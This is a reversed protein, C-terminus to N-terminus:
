SIKDVLWWKLRQFISGKELDNETVLDVTAIEQEDLFIVAQGFRTGKEIPAIIENVPIKIDQRIDAEQNKPILVVANDSAVLTTTYEKGRAVRLPSGVTFGKQLVVVRKFDNFGHNLLNVVARYRDTKAPAGMVVAILRLDQRKATVCLNFGAGRSHFGTKLGDVGPYKQLLERNTNTLTFVGNRFSDELTSTWHLIQPYKLLARGLIAVDYATTYNENQGKDPPLGHVNAFVTRTMGLEKTRANMMEVCADTDGALHEAVSTIADNASSIAAAKLLESLPFQEGEALYVQQGGIRSAWASVTVIDNLNIEGTELKEMALLLVMMKVISAPIAQEHANDEFLVQGTAADMLLASKYEPENAAFTTNGRINLILLLSLLVVSTPKRKMRTQM